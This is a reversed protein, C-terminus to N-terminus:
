GGDRLPVDCPVGGRDQGSAGRPDSWVPLLDFDRGATYPYPPTPKSVQRRRFPWQSLVAMHSYAEAFRDLILAARRTYEPKRTAQYVRALAQCQQIFWDRRLRDAHAEFWCDQGRKEDFYYRYTVTEGLANVGQAAKDM